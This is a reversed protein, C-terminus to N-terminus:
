MTRQNNIIYNIWSDYNDEFSNTELWNIYPLYLDNIFFDLEEHKKYDLKHMKTWDVYYTHLNMQKTKDNTLIKEDNMYKIAQNSFNQYKHSLIKDALYIGGTLISAILLASALTKLEEKNTKM